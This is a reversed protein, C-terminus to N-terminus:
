DLLLGMVGVPAGVAELDPGISHSLDELWGGYAGAGAAGLRAFTGLVKLGRQARVWPWRDRWGDEACTVRAWTRQLQECADAPLLRPLGREGVLSVADYTDPGLLMDQEDIM